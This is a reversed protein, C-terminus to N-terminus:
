TSPPEDLPMPEGPVRGTRLLGGLVGVIGAPIGERELASITHEVPYTARELMIEGDQLIAYLYAVEIKIGQATSEITRV